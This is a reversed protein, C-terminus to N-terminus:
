AAKVFWDMDVPAHVEDGSQLRLRYANCEDWHKLVVGKEWDDPGAGVKAKIAAGVPFRLPKTVLCSKFGETLEPRRPQMGRGIFIIRNERKEGPAWPKTFGQNRLMHVCQLVFKDNSGAINLVAKVRLFDKATEEAGLYKDLFRQFAFMMVQGECRVGVNSVTKDMKPKYFERFESEDMYQEDLVKELNFAGVNFLKAMPARAQQCPIIDAAGNLEKIRATVKKLHDEDVLDTKNLLVTSSFAIQACATGKEPDGKSEDLKSIAHKADVLTVVNDVYFTQQVTEDVIFTQVVPAPDAMGTLEILVGDLHGGGFRYKEGIRHLTQILDGRVSCCICGNDLLVLEEAIDQHKQEVLADDISVEGIENEIVALKKDQQETLIYNLLTTKGAGLYGTLITVPLRPAPGFSLYGNEEEEVKRRKDEASM